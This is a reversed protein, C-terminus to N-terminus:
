SVDYVMKVVNERELTFGIFASCMAKLQTILDSILDSRKILITGINQLFVSALGSNMGKSATKSNRIKTYSHM